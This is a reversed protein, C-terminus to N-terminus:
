IYYQNMIFASIRLQLFMGRLLFPFTYVLSTYCAIGIFLHAGKGAECGRGGESSQFIVNGRISLGGEFPSMLEGNMFLFYHLILSVQPMPLLVSNRRATARKM